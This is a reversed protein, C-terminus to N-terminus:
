SREDAADSTYLLCILAREQFDGGEELEDLLAVVGKERQGREDRAPHQEPREQAPAGAPRPDVGRAGDLEDVALVRQQEVHAIRAFVGRSVDEARLVNRERADVFARGVEGLALLLRDDDVVVAALARRFGRRRQLALAERLDRIKGATEAGPSLGAQRHLLLLTASTSIYQVAAQGNQWDASCSSRFFPARM